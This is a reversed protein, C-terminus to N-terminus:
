EDLMGTQTNWLHAYTGGKKLLEHHNGDEVIAGDQFVIIRDLKAVTSLRHAIVIATKNEMMKFMADQILKESVTDLASTAEDM